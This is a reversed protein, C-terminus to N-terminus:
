RPAVAWSPLCSRRLLCIVSISVPLHRHEFRLIGVEERGDRALPPALHLLDLEDRRLVVRAFRHELGDAANERVLVGLAIRTMAVVATALPDINDLVDRDLARFRQEARLVGVHLRVGACRRVHGGVGSQELRAIRHHAHREILAAMERVARGDVERRLQVAKDRVVHAALVLQEIVVLDRAKGFLMPGLQQHGTRGGVRSEPVKRPQAPDRISHPRKEHHVHRVKGPEDGGALM